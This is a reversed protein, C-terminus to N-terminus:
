GNQLLEVLNGDPDEVIAVRIGPRVTVIPTSVTYGAAEIQAMAEDLNSIWITFYRLGTSGPIQGPANSVTPPTDFRVLKLTASGSKMRHMVGGGGIPMPMDMEHKLGLIDRYFTLSAESDRIVIGLDVSQKEPDIQLTMEAHHGMVFCRTFVSGM